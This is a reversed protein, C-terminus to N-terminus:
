KLIHKGLALIYLPLFLTSLICNRVVASWRTVTRAPAMMGTGGYSKVDQKLTNTADIEVHIPDEQSLRRDRSPRFDGPGFIFSQQVVAEEEQRPQFLYVTSQDNEYEMEIEM